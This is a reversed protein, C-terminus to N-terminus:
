GGALMQPINQILDRSYDTMMSMLWPLCFAIILLMLVIKPVVALTYDQIQTVAQIVGMVVGILLAVLLIPGALMLTMNMAQRGIDIAADPEM